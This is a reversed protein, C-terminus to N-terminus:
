TEWGTSTARQAFGYRARAPSDAPASLSFNFNEEGSLVTHWPAGVADREVEVVSMGQAALDFVSAGALVPDGWRIFASSTYGAPVVFSDESADVLAIPEIPLGSSSPAAM